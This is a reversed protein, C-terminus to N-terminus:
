GAAGGRGRVLRRFRPDEALPAYRPEIRLWSPSVWSPVALLREITALAEDPRRVMEFQAPYQRARARLQGPDAYGGDGKRYLGMARIASALDSAGLESIGTVAKRQLLVLIMAEHLDMKAGGARGM